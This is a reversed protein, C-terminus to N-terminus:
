GHKGGIEKLDAWIQASIQDADGASLVLLVDGPMLNKQLYVVVDELAPIFIAGPHDMGKVVAEASFGNAQERAAYVETVIVRDADAFAAAFPDQLARTRSFTHPQWVAWIRRGAYMARAAQLTARIETPHHAYDDIVTIGEATGRLDFRRGTGSFQELVAAAQAVPLGLCDIAALAALANSANHLGPVSLSVSALLDGGRLADFRYGKGPQPVLNAASYDAPERVGYTLARCSAPIEAVLGRTDAQDACVLLTGGAQLRGVFGAFAARYDAPTPYCDPHDHEMYTVVALAPQLGHFMRDYEDAEIVFASGQGAHANGGLDRSVGGIIYSPDQGLRNLLFAIMATTTTKGHTGAVAITQFGDTLRHLFEARKLVPIGAARAAQVEPNDEPVASSRVVVDAGAVQEAAHGAYVRIGAARLEEALPSVARDSGSVPYGREALLRAIASLGSGGIGIFHIREM